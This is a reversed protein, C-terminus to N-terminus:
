GGPSHFFLHRKGSAVWNINMEALGPFTVCPCLRSSSVSIALRMELDHCFEAGSGTDKEM